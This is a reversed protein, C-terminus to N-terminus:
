RRLSSDVINLPKCITQTCRECISRLKGGIKRYTVGKTSESCMFCRVKEKGKDTV